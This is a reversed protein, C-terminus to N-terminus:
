ANASLGAAAGPEATVIGITGFHSSTRSRVALGYREILGDFGGRAIYDRFGASHETGATAEIMRIARWPIHLAPRRPRAFDALILRGDSRLVRLAERLMVARESETHEHLALLLLVADYAGDDFPLEYASGVVYSTNPGGRQRAAAIMPESLDLGTAHLGARGLARCQAGTATAIDLVNAAGLDVCIRVVKPRLPGLLPDILRRYIRVAPSAYRTKWAM